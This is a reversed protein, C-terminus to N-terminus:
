LDCVRTKQTRLKKEREASRLLKAASVLFACVVDPHLINKESDKFIEFQKLAKEIASIFM